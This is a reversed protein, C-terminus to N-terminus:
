VNKGTQEIDLIASKARDRREAKVVPTRVTLLDHTCGETTPSCCWRDSTLWQPLPLENSAVEWRTPLQKFQEQGRTEERHGNKIAKTSNCTDKSGARVKLSLGGIVLFLMSSRTRSTKLNYSLTSGALTFQKRTEQM